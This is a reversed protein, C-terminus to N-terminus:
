FSFGIKATLINTNPRLGNPNTSTYYGLGTGHLFHDELKAYFYSNFDFRTSIVWDKSYNRSLATDLAKNNYHSYYSGVQLKGSIRYSGMGYWSRIDFPLFLTGQSSTIADTLAGRNYEGVLNWKGRRFEAYEVDIHFPATHLSAVPGSGDLAEVDISTGVTLGNVPPKWRLDGGYTKGGPPSTFVVGADSFQKVYGGNADLNVQGAYGDYALRGSHKGLPIEGYVDGGLHSLFFGKNDV